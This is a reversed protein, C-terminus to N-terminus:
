STPLVIRRFTLNIRPQKSQRTKPLEHRWYHQVSGAMVLLDGHALEFDCKQGTKNHRFRLLRTEGFSISAILPNDGLAKEDDSHCGMSDRGDRYLNALVSNFPHACCKQVDARLCLLDQTWPLPQHDVGSYRYYADADGYWAMLRPVTLWRGFLFLQEEQWQLGHYLRQFYDDAQAQDYFQKLWYLRGDCPLCNSQAAFLTL